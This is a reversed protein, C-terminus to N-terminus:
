PRKSWIGVGNDTPRDLKPLYGLHRARTGLRAETARQVNRDHQPPSFPNSLKAATSREVDMAPKLLATWSSILERRSFGCQLRKGQWDEGGATASVPQNSLFPIPATCRLCM